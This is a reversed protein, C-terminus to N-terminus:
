KVHTHRNAVICYRASDPDRGEHIESNVSLVSLLSIVVYTFKFNCNIDISLLFLYMTDQSNIDTVQGTYPPSLLLPMEASFVPSYSNGTTLPCPVAGCFGQTGPLM